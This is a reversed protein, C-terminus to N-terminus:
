PSTGVRTSPLQRLRAARRRGGFLAFLIHSGHLFRGIAAGSVFVRIGQIPAQAVSFEGEFALVRSELVLGAGLIDSEQQQM